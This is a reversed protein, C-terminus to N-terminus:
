VRSLGMFTTHKMQVWILRKKSNPVLFETGTQGDKVALVPYATDADFGKEEVGDVYVRFKRFYM